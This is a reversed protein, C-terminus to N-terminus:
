ALRELAESTEIVDGFGFGYSTLAAQHQKKSTTGCADDVFWTDFGRNFASRATTECCCDTMVGCIVVRDIKKELLTQELNNNLFSDYTNKPFIPFDDHVRKKIEPILEWDKLGRAISGAAGWKKILQNRTKGALEEETHGHQTFIVPLSKSRFYDILTITKPLCATTLSLFTNQMDIVLLATAM